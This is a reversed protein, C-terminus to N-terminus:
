KIKNREKICARRVELMDITSYLARPGKHELKTKESQKEVGLFTPKHKTPKDENLLRHLDVKM